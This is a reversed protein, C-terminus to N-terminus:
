RTMLYCSSPQLEIRWQPFVVITTTPEEIIAPGQIVEGPQIDRGDYVPTPM